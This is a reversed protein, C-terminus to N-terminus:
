AAAQLSLGKRPAATKWARPCLNWFMITSAEAGVPIGTVSKGASGAPPVNTWPVSAVTQNTVLLPLFFPNVDSFAKRLSPNAKPCTLFIESESRPVMLVSAAIVSFSECGSPDIMLHPLEAATNSTFFLVRKGNGLALTNSSRPCLKLWRTTTSQPRNAYTIPKGIEFTLWYSSIWLFREFLATKKDTKVIQM